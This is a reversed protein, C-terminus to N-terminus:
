RAFDELLGCYDGCVAILIALIRNTGPFSNKLNKKSL